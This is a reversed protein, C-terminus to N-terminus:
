DKGVLRKMVALLEETMRCMDREYAEDDDCPSVEIHMDSGVVSEMDSWNNFENQRRTLHEWVHLVISEEEDDTMGDDWDGDVEEDYDEDDIEIPTCEGYLRTMDGDSAYMFEFGAAKLEKHWAERLQEDGGAESFRDALRMHLTGIMSLSNWFAPYDFGGGSQREWYIAITTSNPLARYTLAIM